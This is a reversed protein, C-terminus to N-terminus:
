GRRNFVTPIWERTAEVGCEAEVEFVFTGGSEKLRIRKGSTVNEIYSGGV